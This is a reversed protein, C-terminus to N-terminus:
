LHYSRPVAKEPLRLSWNDSRHTGRVPFCLINAGKPVEHGLRELFVATWDPQIWALQVLNGNNGPDGLNLIGNNRPHEGFLNIQLPELPTPNSSGM